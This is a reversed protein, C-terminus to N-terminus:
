FTRQFNFLKNHSLNPYTSQLQFEVNDNWEKSLIEVTIKDKAFSANTTVNMKELDAESIFLALFQPNVSKISFRLLHHIAFPQQRKSDFKDQSLEITEDNMFILIFSAYNSKNALRFRFKNRTITEVKFNQPIHLLYEYLHATENKQIDDFTVVYPFPKKAFYLHRIAFNVPNYNQLNYSPTGDGAIYDFIESSEQEIIKGSVGNGGGSFREGKGDILVLNHGLSSSASNEKTDNAAGSDIVLPEGQFTLTFSNNDSQDHIGVIYEGCNFTVVTAESSWADRINLYGLDSCFLRTPLSSKNLELPPISSQPFFLYADFLSSFNLGPERGYSALGKNGVLLEWVCNVLSPNRQSGITLYGWLAPHPNWYSDNWNNLYKGRPFLEYFYWEVLRDLKDSYKDDLFEGNVKINNKRCIRLLLGLIKSVFGCYWLGERTMGQDTIGDIFFDEVRGMAVDLWKQAESVNNRLSIAAIALGSFAMVTHNWANRGREKRGWPKTLSEQWLKRAIQEIFEVILKHEEASFLEPAFDRFLIIATVVFATHIEEAFVNPYSVHNLSIEKVLHKALNAAELDDVLKYGLWLELLVNHVVFISGSAPTKLISEAGLKKAYECNAKIQEYIKNFPYISVRKKLDVIEAESLLLFGSDRKIKSTEQTSKSESPSQEMEFKIQKLRSQYQEINLKIQKLRSPQKKPISM